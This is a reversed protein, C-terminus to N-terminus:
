GIVRTFTNNRRNAAPLIAARHSRRKTDETTFRDCRKPAVAFTNQDLQRRIDACERAPPL